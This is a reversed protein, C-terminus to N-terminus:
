QLVLVGGVPNKREIDQAVQGLNVPFVPEGLIFVTIKGQQVIFFEVSAMFAELIQDLNVVVLWTKSFPDQGDKEIKIM